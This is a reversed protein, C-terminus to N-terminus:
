RRGSARYCLGRRVPLLAVACTVWARLVKGAYVLPTLALMAGIGMGLGLLAGASRTAMVTYIDLGIAGAGLAMWLWRRGRLAM